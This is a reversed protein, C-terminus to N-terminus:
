GIPSQAYIKAFFYQEVRQGQQAQGQPRTFHCLKDTMMWEHPM